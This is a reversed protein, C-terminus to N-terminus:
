SEPNIRSGSNNEQEFVNMTEFENKFSYNRYVKEKSVADVQVKSDSIAEVQDESKRKPDVQEVSDFIASNSITSQIAMCVIEYSVAPNNRGCEFVNSVNFYNTVDYTVENNTDEQKKIACESKKGGYFKIREKVRFLEAIFNQQCHHTKIQEREYFM